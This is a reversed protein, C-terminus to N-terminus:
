LSLVISVKQGDVLGLMRAFKDDIEIAGVDEKPKRGSRDILSKSRATSGM